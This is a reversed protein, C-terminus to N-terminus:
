FVHSLDKVYYRFGEKFGFSRMWRDRASVRGLGVDISFEIVDVGVERCWNEFYDFCAGAEWGGATPLGRMLDFRGIRRARNVSDRLGYGACLISLSRFCVSGSKGSCGALVSLSDAYDFDHTGASIGHAEYIERCFAM